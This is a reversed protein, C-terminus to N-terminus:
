LELKNIVIAKGTFIKTKKNTNTNNIDIMTKYVNSGKNELTGSIGFQIISTTTDVEGDVEFNTDSESDLTNEFILKATGSFGSMSYISYDDNKLSVDIDYYSDEILPKIETFDEYDKNNLRFVTKM